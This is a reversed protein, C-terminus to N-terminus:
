VLRYLTANRAGKQSLVVGEAIMSRLVDAVRSKRGGVAEALESQNKPGDTLALKIQERLVMRAQAEPDQPEARWFRASALTEGDDALEYSWLAGFTEVPKRRAKTCKVTVIDKGDEREILFAYDVGGEISSHGRLSNGERGISDKRRHHIICVAAGTIEALKRLSVMAGDIESANEDRVGAVRLLNDIVIMGASISRAYETLTPLGKVAVMPPDPFVLWYLPITLDAHRARAFAALREAIVDEGNDVDLWLAPCQTVGFGMHNGKGPLDPLWPDSMAASFCLDLLLNSKLSGPSGYWISVSRRPLVGEVVSPLRPRPAMAHALTKVQAALKAMAEAVIGSTRGPEALPDAEMVARRLEDHAAPDPVLDALAAEFVQPGNGDAGALRRAIERAPEALADLDADPVPVGCILRALLTYDANSM